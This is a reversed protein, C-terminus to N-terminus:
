KEIEKHKYVPKRKWKKPPTDTAVSELFEKAYPLYWEIFDNDYHMLELKTENPTWIYFWCKDQKTVCMQIQMQFWYREPIEPYIKQTWPCKVEVPVKDVFADPTAGFPLTEHVLFKKSPTLITDMEIELSALATPEHTNGWETMENGTFPPVRWTQENFLSTREYMAKWAVSATIIKNTRKKDKLHEYTM